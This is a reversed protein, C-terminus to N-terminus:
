DPAARAVTKAPRKGNAPGESRAPMAATKQSSATPSAPKTGAEDNKRRGPRDDDTFTLSARGLHRVLGNWLAAPFVFQWGVVKGKRNSYTTARAVDKHPFRAYGLVAQLTPRDNTYLVAHQDTLQWMWAHM